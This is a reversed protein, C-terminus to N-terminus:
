LYITRSVDKDLVIHRSIQMDYQFNEIFDELSDEEKKSMKFIEERQDRSRCYDQYRTLFTQKMDDWSTITEDGLGM